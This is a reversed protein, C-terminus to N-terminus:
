AVTGSVPVAAQGSFDISTAPYARAAMSEVAASDHRLTRPLHLHLDARESKWSAPSVYFTSSLGRPRAPPSPLSSSSSRTNCAAMQENPLCAAADM